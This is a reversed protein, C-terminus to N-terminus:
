NNLRELEDVSARKATERERGGTQSKLLREGTWVYKWRDEVFPFLMGGRNKLSTWIVSIQTLAHLSVTVTM